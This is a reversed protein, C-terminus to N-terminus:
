NPRIAMLQENWDKFAIPIHRRCELGNRRSGEAARVVAAALEDGAQDSDMAAIVKMGALEPELRGVLFTILDLQAASAQGAISAYLGCRPFLAAYSLADIASECIVISVSGLRYCSTWLGKTGGPSFGTFGLNKIEFGCPIVPSSRGNLLQMDDFHPFIANGWPGEFVTGAFQEDELIRAPIARHRELYPHGSVPRMLAWVKEIAFHAKDIAELKPFVQPPWSTGMWARLKKRVHGLNVDEQEQVFEIISGTQEICGGFRHYLWHGDEHRRIIIKDSGRRMVAATRYSERKDMVYGISAAYERLDIQTKFMELEQDFAM